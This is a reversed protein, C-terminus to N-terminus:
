GLLAEEILTSQEAITPRDFFDLMSIEVDIADAVRALLRMALLSDGGSDFFRDNVGIGERELVETWLQHVLRQVPGDPAVFPAPGTPPGDLDVLGLESAIGIRRPKGTPGRPLDDVVIIRRPM